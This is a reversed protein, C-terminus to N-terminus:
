ASLILQEVSGHVPESILEESRIVTSDTRTTLILLSLSALDDAFKHQVIVREHQVPVLVIADMICATM